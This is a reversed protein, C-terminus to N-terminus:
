KQSWRLEKSRLAFGDMFSLVCLCGDVVVVCLVQFRTSLSLEWLDAVTRSFPIEVIWKPAKSSCRALNQNKLPCVMCVPADEFVCGLSNEATDM